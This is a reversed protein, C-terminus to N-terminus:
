CSGEGIPEGEGQWSGLGIRSLGVARGPGQLGGASFGGLLAATWRNTAVRDAIEIPPHETRYRTGPDRQRLPPPAAARPHERCPCDSTQRDLALCCAFAEQRALSPVPLCQTHHYRGAAAPSTNYQLGLFTQVPGLRTTNCHPRQRVPLSKARAM